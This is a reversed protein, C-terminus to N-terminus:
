QSRDNRDAWPPSAIEEGNVRITKMITPTLKGCVLAKRFGLFGM